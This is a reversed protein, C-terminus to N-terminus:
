PSWSGMSGEALVRPASGDAPMVELSATGDGAVLPLLISAGDPDWFRHSLAYQDFYPLVQNVFLESLRVPRESRVTGGAVDVFVLSAPVGPAAAAPPGAPGVGTASALRVRAPAGAAGPDAGQQIALAAITRGDPSWFFAVVVRDLLTRTEGSTADLLRLAGIPLGVGQDAEGPAVYALSGGAPAFAFAAPGFVRAEHLGSGDGGAVVIAASGDDHTVAYARFRGDASVAPSRFDGPTGAITGVTTGDSGVEGLFLEGENGGAHVLMRGAGDWAWYMPAGQRVITAPASADAPALRLAISPGEATLFTV